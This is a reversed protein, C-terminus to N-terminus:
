NFTRKAGFRVTDCDSSADGTDPEHVEDEENWYGWRETRRSKPPVLVLTWVGKEPVDSIAHYRNKGRFLNFYRVHVRKRGTNTAPCLVEQAYHGRLVISLFWPWPHNHLWRYPDKLQIFHLYLEFRRGSGDGKLYYRTLYPKGNLFIRKGSLKKVIRDIWRVPQAATSSEFTAESLTEGPHPEHKTRM